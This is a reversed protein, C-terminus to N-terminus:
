TEDNNCPNSNTERNLILVDSEVELKGMLFIVFIIFM